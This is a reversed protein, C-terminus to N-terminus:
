KQKPNESLEVNPYVDSDHSSKDTIHNNQDDVIVSEQKKQSTNNNNNTDLENIFIGSNPQPQEKEEEKRPFLLCLIIQVIGSLTGLGNPITLFWDTTAIGYICWFTGNITNLIMTPRHISSSEYTSLVIFITSLPAGYFFMVNVNVAFGVILENTNHSFQKTFSIITIIILWITSITLLGLEYQKPPPITEFINTTSSSPTETQNMKINNVGYISTRDITTNQIHRLLNEIPSITNNEQQNEVDIKKKNDDEDNNDDNNDDNDISNILNRLDDNHEKQQNKYNQITYTINEQYQISYFQKAYLIKVGQSVYWISLLFGPANAIFIFLNQKLIGYACRLSCYYEFRSLFWFLISFFSIHWVLKQRFM